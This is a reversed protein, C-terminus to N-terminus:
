TAIWDINLKDDIWEYKIRKHGESNLYLWDIRYIIINFSIFNLYGLEYEANSIETIKKLPINPEYNPIISSPAFKGLYCIKSELAMNDWIARQTINNNLYVNGNTRLQVKRKKDYFLSSVQNNKLLKLYKPSRKDTNFSIIRKQKDVKRLIVVRSDVTNDITNSLVFHHFPHKASKTAAILNNWENDLIKDTNDM